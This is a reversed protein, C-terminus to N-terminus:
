NERLMPLSRDHCWQAIEQMKIIGMGPKPHLDRSCGLEGVSDNFHILKIPIKCYQEWHKLYSLPDYGSATTHCTDICIGIKEREKETFRYFFSGLEEIKSCVEGKQNSPTKLLLPCSESAYHLANRVM